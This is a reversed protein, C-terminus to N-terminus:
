ANNEKERQKEMREWDDMMKADEVMADLERKVNQRNYEYRKNNIRTILGRRQGRM